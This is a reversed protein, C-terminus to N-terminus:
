EVRLMGRVLLYGAPITVIGVLASTLRLTYVSLGLLAALGAQLYTYLVERGGNAPLFLPREGELVRAADLANFAEDFQFGPPILGLQYLRLLAALSTVALLVAWDRRNWDIMPLVDRTGAKSPRDPPVAANRRRQRYLLDAAKNTAGRYLSRG